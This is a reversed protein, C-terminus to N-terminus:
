RPAAYDMLAMGDRDIADLRLGSDGLLLGARTAAGSYFSTLTSVLRRHRVISACSAAAPPEFWTTLAGPRGMQIQDGVVVYGNPGTRLRLRLRM